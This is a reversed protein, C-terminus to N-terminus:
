GVHVDRTVLKTASSEFSSILIFKPKSSSTLSSARTFASVPFLLTSRLYWELILGLCNLSPSRTILFAWWYSISFLNDGLPCSQKSYGFCEPVAGVAQLHQFSPRNRASILQIHVKILFLVNLLSLSLDISSLAM